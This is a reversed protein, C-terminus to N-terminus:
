RTSKYAGINMKAGSMKKMIIDFAKRDSEQVTLKAMKDIDYEVEQGNDLAHHVLAAVWIAITTLRQQGDIVVYNMQGSYGPNIADSSQSTLLIGLWHEPAGEPNTAAILIDSVLSQWLPESWQYNRQYGPVIYHNGSNLIQAITSNLGQM